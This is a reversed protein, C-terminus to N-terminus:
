VGCGMVVEKMGCKMWVGVVGSRAEKVECEVVVRRVVGKRQM